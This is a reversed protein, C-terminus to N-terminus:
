NKICPGKEETKNNAKQHGCVNQHRCGDNNIREKREALRLYIPCRNTPQGKTKGSIDEKKFPQLIIEEESFTFM